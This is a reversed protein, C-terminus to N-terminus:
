YVLNRRVTGDNYIDINAKYVGMVHLKNTDTAISTLKLLPSQSNLNIGPAMFNEVMHSFNGQLAINYYRTGTQPFISTKRFNRLSYMDYDLVTSFDVIKNSGAIDLEWKAIAQSTFPTVATIYSGDVCSQFGIWKLEGNECINSLDQQDVAGSTSSITYDQDSIHVTNLSYFIGSKGIFNVNEKEDSGKIRYRDYSLTYGSVTLATTSEISSAARITIKIVMDSNCKHLPFGTQYGMSGYNNIVCDSGPGLLPIYLQGSATTTTVDGILTALYGLVTVDTNVTAIYQMLSLGSYQYIQNGINIEVNEIVNAMTLCGVTSSGAFTASFALNGINGQARQITFVLTTGFSTSSDSLDVREKFYTKNIIINDNTTRDIDAIKRINSFSGNFDKQRYNSLALLKDSM